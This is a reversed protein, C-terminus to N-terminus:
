GNISSTLQYIPGVIMLALGGVMIGIFILLIPELLTTLNASMEQVDEAYFEYLYNLNDSLTGTQEGIEIMKVFTAPFHNKYQSLSDALNLGDKVSLHVKAFIAAYESNSTTEATISLAKAIPIGNAMLINVTRAFTMLVNYRFLKGLIPFRLMFSDKWRNGRKTGLFLKLLILIIGTGITFAVVNERVFRASGMIIKTYEPVTFTSFLNELQPLIFFIVGLIEALTLGMVIIPYLMAGKLKSQLEHNKKLYDALFVLNSELTGGKEGVSIISTITKSFAKPYNTMSEALSVGGEIDQYIEAFIKKLKLDPTQESLVKIAGDITVGSKLMVAIHRVALAINLESIRLWLKTRQNVKQPQTQPQEIKETSM